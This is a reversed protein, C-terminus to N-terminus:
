CRNSGRGTARLYADLAKGREEEAIASLVSRMRSDVIRRTGQDRTRELYRKGTTAM